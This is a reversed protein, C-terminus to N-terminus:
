KEVSWEAWHEVLREVLNEAMLAAMLAVMLDGTLAALRDAWDVATMVVLSIEMKAALLVVLSVAKWYAWYGAMTAAM